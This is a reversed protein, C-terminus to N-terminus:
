DNCRHSKDTNFDHRYYIHSHKVVTIPQGCDKCRDPEGEKKSFIIKLKSLKGDSWHKSKGKFFGHVNM